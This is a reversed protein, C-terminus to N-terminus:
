QKFATNNDGPVVEPYPASNLDKIRSFFIYILDIIQTLEPDPYSGMLEPSIRFVGPSM